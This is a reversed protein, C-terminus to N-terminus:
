EPCFYKINTCKVTTEEKIQKKVDFVNRKRHLHKTPIPPPFKVSCKMSQRLVRRFRQCRILCMFGNATNALYFFYYAFFKLWHFSSIDAKKGVNAHIIAPFYCLLYILLVICITKAARATKIDSVTKNGLVKEKRKAAKVTVITM